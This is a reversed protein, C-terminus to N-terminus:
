GPQTQMDVPPLTMLISRHFILACCPSSANAKLSQLPTSAPLSSLPLTLSPNRPPGQKGPRRRRRCTLHQQALPEDKGHGLSASQPTSGPEPFLVALLFIHILPVLPLSFCFCEESFHLSMHFHFVNGM